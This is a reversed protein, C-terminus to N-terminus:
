MNKNMQSRFMKVPYIQWDSTISWKSSLSVVSLEERLLRNISWDIMFSGDEREKESRLPLSIDMISLRALWDAGNFVTEGKKMQM